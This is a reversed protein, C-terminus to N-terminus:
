TDISGMMKDEDAKQEGVLGLIQKGLAIRKKPM